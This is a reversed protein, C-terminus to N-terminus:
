KPGTKRIQEAYGANELVLGAHQAIMDLADVQVPSAQAHGFDGYVVAVVRGHQKVPLLLVTQRLPRGLADYIKKDLLEDDSDGFFLQGTEVVDRVVSYDGLPIRVAAPLPGLDKRVGFGAGEAGVVEEPGVTFIMVRGFCVAVAQLVARMIDAPDELGRLGTMHGALRRMRDGADIANDQQIHMLRTFSRFAELFRMTDPIFTQQGSDRVPRPVVAQVGGEYSDLTFSYEEAVALQIIVAEPRGQMTRSRVAALDSESLKLVTPSDFVVVPIIRMSLCQSLIRELEVEERTAFVMISDKKCITMVSYQLLEDGSYLVLAGTRTAQRTQADQAGIRVSAKELFLVFSEQEQASFGVLTENIKQRHIAVPDFVEEEPSPAPIKKELHDLDSLGLDDATIVRVDATKPPPNYQPLVDAYFEEYSPVEKGANRDREREDFVRLADMLVMQADLSMEQEMAGPEYKCEPSVNIADPDFTFTGRTWTMLEVIAIEILKKLGRFADEHRVKGLQILTSILPKRDKGAKKQHEFAQELAEQTIANTKVLVSGIRVRGNLHSAGVIYGNSFIIRSEGREGKVSFTGSKRTTHILQIIDAIHLQELDGTIAM